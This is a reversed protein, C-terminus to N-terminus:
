QKFGLLFGRQKMDQLFIKIQRDLFNIDNIEWLSIIDSKIQQLTHQKQIAAEVLYAYIVSLDVFQVKGTEQERYILLFFNGKKDKLEDPKSRHVPYDFRVLKYEPNFVLQDNDWDGEASYKPYSIDQMMYLEIELWEFLLLENLYVLDNEKQYNRDVIFEYFEYALKWLQPTQSNHHQFFDLVMQNWIEEDLYHSAIPFSSDLSDSFVNFILRQYQDVRDPTLGPIEVDDKKRCYAALNSQYQRTDNKLLM